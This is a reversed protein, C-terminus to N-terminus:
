SSISFIALSGFWKGWLLFGCCFTCLEPKRDDCGDADPLVWCLNKLEWYTLFSDQRISRQCFLRKRSIPNFSSLTEMTSHKSMDKFIVSELRMLFLMHFRDNTDVTLVYSTRFFRWTFRDWALFVIITQFSFSYSVLNFRM